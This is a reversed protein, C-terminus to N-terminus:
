RSPSTAAMPMPTFRFNGNVGAESM